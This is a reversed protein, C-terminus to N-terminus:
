LPSSTKTKVRAMVLIGIVYIAALLMWAPRYSHTTRVLGGFVPLFLVIGIFGSMGTLGLAMGRQSASSIRSIWTTLLANWGDLGAGLAFFIVIIMYFATTKPVLAWALLAAIGIIATVIMLRQANRGGDALKGMVIRAVFGGFLALALIPGAVDMKVHWRDHLDLLSYTLLTYQGPSLLLSVLLPQRLHGLLGIAGKVGSRNMTKLPRPAHPHLMWAFLM